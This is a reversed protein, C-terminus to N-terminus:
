PGLVKLSDKMGMCPEIKWVYGDVNDTFKAQVKSIYIAAEDSVNEKVMILNYVKVGEKGDATVFNNWRTIFDPMKPITDITKMVDKSSKFPYWATLMYILKFM